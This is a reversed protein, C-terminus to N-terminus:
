GSRCGPLIVDGGPPAATAPEACRLILVALEGSSQGQCGIGRVAGSQRLPWRALRAGNAGRSPGVQCVRRATGTGTGSLYGSTAIATATPWGGVGARAFSGPFMALRRWKGASPVEAPSGNPPRRPRGQKRLDRGGVWEEARFGARSGRIEHDYRGGGKLHSWSKRDAGGVVSAGM